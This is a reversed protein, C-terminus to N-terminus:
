DQFAIPHTTRRNNCSRRKRKGKCHRRARCRKRTHLIGLGVLVDNGNCELLTIVLNSTPNREKLVVDETVVNIGRTLKALIRLRLAIGMLGPNLCLRIRRALVIVGISLYLRLAIPEDDSRTIGGDLEGLIAGEHGDLAATLDDHFLGGREVYILGAGDLRELLVVAFVEKAAAGLVAAEDVRAVGDIDGILAVPNVTAHSRRVREIPGIVAVADHAVRKGVARIIKARGIGTNRSGTVVLVLEVGIVENGISLLALGGRRDGLIQELVVELDGAIRHEQGLVSEINTVQISPVAVHPGGLGLVSVAFPLNLAALGCPGARTLNLILLAAGTSGHLGARVHLRQVAM